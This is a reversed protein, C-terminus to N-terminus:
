RTWDITGRLERIYDPFNYGKKEEFELELKSYLNKLIIQEVVKAASVMLKKLTSSFVEPNKAADVLKLQANKKLFDYIAKAGEDKFIQKLTEDVVEAFFANWNEREVVSLGESV